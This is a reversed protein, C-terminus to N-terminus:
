LRDIEPIDIAAMVNNIAEKDSVGIKQAYKYFIDDMNLTHYLNGDMYIDIIKELMSNNYIFKLQVLSNEMGIFDNDILDHTKDVIKRDNVYVEGSIMLLTIKSDTISILVSADSTNHITLIEDTIFIEKKKMCVLNLGFKLKYEKRGDDILIYEGLDSIQMM